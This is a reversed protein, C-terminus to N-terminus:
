FHEDQGKMKIALKMNNTPKGKRVKLRRIYGSDIRSYYNIPVGFLEVCSKLTVKIDERRMKSGDIENMLHYFSPWFVVSKEFPLDIPTGILSYAWCRGVLAEGLERNGGRCASIFVRKNELGGLLLNEIRSNLFSEGNIILGTQDAHCSLHLYRFNNSKFDLIFREVDEVTDAWNHVSVMGFLNLIEHLNEGDFFNESRLSEIIYVGHATKVKHKKNSM